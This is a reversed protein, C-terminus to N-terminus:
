VEGCVLGLLGEYVFEGIPVGSIRLFSVERLFNEVFNRAVEKSRPEFLLFTQPVLQLLTRLLFTLVIVM